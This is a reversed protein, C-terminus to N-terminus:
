ASIMRRTTMDKPRGWLRPPIGSHNIKPGLEASASGATSRRPDPSCASCCVRASVNIVQLCSNTTSVPQDHCPDILDPTSHVFHAMIAHGNCGSNRLCVLCRPPTQRVLEVRM